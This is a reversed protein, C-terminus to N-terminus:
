SGPGNLIFNEDLGKLQDLNIGQDPNQVRYHAPIKKDPHVNKIFEPHQKKMWEQYKSSSM